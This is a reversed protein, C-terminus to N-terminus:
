FTKIDCSHTNLRWIKQVRRCISTPIAFPFIRGCAQFSIGIVTWIYQRKAVSSKLRRRLGVSVAYASDNLLHSRLCHKVALQNGFKSSV